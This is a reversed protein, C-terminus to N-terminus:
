DDLTTLGERVAFKTLGALSDIGIKERINSRHTEITKVSVNLSYAIEKTSTGEALMKLVQRERDTLKTYAPSDTEAMKNAYDRVVVDVISSSLYTNGKYVSEIASVLEEFAAHKLVFGRAGARLMEVVFRRDSHMSLAIVNIDPFETRLQRTAEIGNLEPMAVDMIAIEPQLERVREIAERGNEAEGAVEISKEKALLSRLGERVISHDEAILIRIAM